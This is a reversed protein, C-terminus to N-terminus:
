SNRQVLRQKRFHHIIKKATKEKLAKVALAISLYTKGTGAPGVAFIMDNSFYADILKQQNESRSKIPRGSMNYVVIGNAAEAATTRGKIIDLIDEESITNHNLLHKRINEMDDEFKAMEEEDGLIRLVNGRAMIRLKPFLSKVMQLHSNGVGYFMIPDIDELVIHKEIM